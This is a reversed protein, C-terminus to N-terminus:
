RVAKRRLEIVVKKAAILVRRRDFEDMDDACLWISSLEIEEELVSALCKYVYRRAETSPKRGGSGNFKSM